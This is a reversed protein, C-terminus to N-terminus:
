SWFHLRGQPDVAFFCSITTRRGTVARVSHVASAAHLVLDGLEPRVVAAVPPLRAPDLGYSNGLDAVQEATPRFDRLELEGGNLATELHVNAAVPERLLRAEPAEPLDDVLRDAHPPIAASSELIRALGCWCARGGLRLISAGAPWTEDAWVRLTEIPCRFPAACARNLDFGAPAQGWYKRSLAVSRGAEFASYGVAGIQPAGEYHTLRPDHRLREALHRCAEAGYFARIVVALIRREHLARLHEPRLVTDYVVLPTAGSAPGYAPEGSAAEASAGAAAPMNPQVALRRVPPTHISEM